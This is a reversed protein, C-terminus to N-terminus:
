PSGTEPLCWPMPEHVAGGVGDEVAGAEGQAHGGGREGGGSGAMGEYADEEGGDAAGVEMRDVATTRGGARADEPMLGHADDLGDAM